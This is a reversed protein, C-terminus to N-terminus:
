EGLEHVGSGPDLLNEGFEDPAGRGSNGEGVVGRLAHVYNGFSEGMDSAIEVKKM